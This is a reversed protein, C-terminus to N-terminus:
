NYKSVGYEAAGYINSVGFDSVTSNGYQNTGYVGIGYRATLDTFVSDNFTKGSERLKLHTVFKDTLETIGYVFWSKKQDIEIEGITHPYKSEAYKSFGYVPLESNRAPAYRKPYSISVQDLFNIDKFDETKVVIEMENKPIKFNDVLNDAIEQANETSTIFPLDIKKERFTLYSILNDDEAGQDNVRVSNFVRHLGTNYDKIGLINSRGLQDNPGYMFYVKGSSLTRPSVIIENLKNIFLISNSAILINAVGEQVSIGDFYNANDIDYDVDLNINNEDFVLLTNFPPRNLISILANKMNGSSSVVGGSIKEKRFISDLSLVKFTIRSEIINQRTGEENILGEFSTTIVGESDLFNVKVRCRDRTFSFISNAQGPPSFIGRYNIFKLDINNFTFVGFDYDGNDLERKIKKIGKNKIFDTVDIDQSVDVIDGYTNQSVLPTFLVQYRLYNESM